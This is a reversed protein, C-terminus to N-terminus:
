EDSELEECDSLVMGFKELCAAIQPLRGTCYACPEIDASSSSGNQSQEVTVSTTQDGGCGLLFWVFCWCVALLYGKM